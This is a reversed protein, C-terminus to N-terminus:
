SVEGGIYIPRRIIIGYSGDKLTTPAMIVSMGSMRSYDAYVGEVGDEFLDEREAIGNDLPYKYSVIGGPALTIDVLDLYDNFVEEAIKAFREGAIGEESSSVTIELIRTIYDRRQIEAEIRDAASSVIFDARERRSNAASTIYIVAIVTTVFLAVVFTILGATFSKKM